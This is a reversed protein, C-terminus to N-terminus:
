RHFLSEFKSNGQLKQAEILIKGIALNLYTFKDGSNLDLKMVDIQMETKEKVKVLGVKGNDLSVEATSNDATKITDSVNLVMGESAPMWEGGAHRYSVDGQIKTIIGNGSEGAYALSIAGFIIAVTLMIRVM